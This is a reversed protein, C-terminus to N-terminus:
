WPLEITVFSLLLQRTMVDCDCTQMKFLEWCSSVHLSLSGCAVALTRRRRAWSRGRNVQRWVVRRFKGLRAIHKSFYDLGWHLPPLPRIANLIEIIPYYLCAQKSQMLRRSPPRRLQTSNSHSARELLRYLSSVDESVVLKNSWRVKLKCCCSAEFSRCFFEAM